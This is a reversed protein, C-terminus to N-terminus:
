PVQRDLLARELFLANSDRGFLVPSGFIRLHESIDSPAQHEFQVEAPTWDSGVMMRLTKVMVVLSCESQQRHPETDYDVLTHRICAREPDRVLILKAARNHIMLYREANQIGIDVTPSNLMVYTLPGLNKPNYREGFHLGFCDDGTQRASEELIRIMSFSPIFGDPNSFAARTLGVSALIKEPNGGSHTISEVLGSTAAVSFLLKM